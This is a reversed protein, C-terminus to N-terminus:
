PFAPERDVLMEVAATGCRQCWLTYANSLDIQGTLWRTHGEHGRADALQNLRAWFRDSGFVAQRVQVPDPTTV